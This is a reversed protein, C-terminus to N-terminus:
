AAAREDPTGCPRLIRLRTAAGDPVGDEMGLVAVLGFLVVIVLASWLGFLAAPAFLTGIVEPPLAAANMITTVDM